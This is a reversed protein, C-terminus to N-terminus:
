HIFFNHSPHTCTHVHTHMHTHTHTHAQKSLQTWCKTVKHIVALWDGRDMPNERCSYQFPKGNGGWLSRGLMKGVWPDFECRGCRRCQCISENDSIWQPLGHRGICSVLTQDRFQSLGRTFSIAVWELIRAQSIGHVSSGPLSYLGHLQLHTPFLKAVLCCCCHTYIIYLYLPINAMFFLLIKGNKVIHISRLPM